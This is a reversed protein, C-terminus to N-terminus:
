EVLLAAHSPPLDASLDTGEQAALAREFDRALQVEPRQALKQEAGAIKELKLFEPTNKALVARFLREREAATSRTLAVQTHILWCVAGALVAVTVVLAGVAVLLATEM